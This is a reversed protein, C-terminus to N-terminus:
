LLFNVILQLPDTKERSLLTEPTLGVMGIKLSNWFCFQCSFYYKSENKEHIIM